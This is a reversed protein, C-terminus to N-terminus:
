QHFFVHDLHYLAIIIWTTSFLKGTSKQFNELKEEQHNWATIKSGPLKMWSKIVNKQKQRRWELVTWDANRHATLSYASFCLNGRRRYVHLTRQCFGVDICLFLVVCRHSEHSYQLADQRVGSAWHKVPRSLVLCCCPVLLNLNIDLFWLFAGIEALCNESPIYYFFNTKFYCLLLNVM